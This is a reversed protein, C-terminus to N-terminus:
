QPGKIVLLERNAVDQPRLSTAQQGIFLPRIRSLPQQLEELFVEVILLGLIDELVLDLAVLVPGRRQDVVEVGEDRSGELPVPLDQPRQEGRAPIVDVDSAM